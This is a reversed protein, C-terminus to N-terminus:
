IIIIGLLKVENNTSKMFDLSISPEMNVIDDDDEEEENDDSIDM